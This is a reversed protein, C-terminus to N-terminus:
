PTDEKRGALRVLPNSQGGGWDAKEVLNVDSSYGLSGQTFVRNWVKRAEEPALGGDRSEQANIPCSLIVLIIFPFFWSKRM